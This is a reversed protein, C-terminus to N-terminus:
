KTRDAPEDSPRMFASYDTLPPTTATAPTLAQPQVQTQTPPPQSPSVVSEAPIPTPAVAELSRRADRRRANIDLGRLAIALAIALIGGTVFPAIYIESAQVFAADFGLDIGGSTNTQERVIFQIFGYDLVTSVVLLVVGIIWLALEPGNVRRRRADAETTLLVPAQNTM